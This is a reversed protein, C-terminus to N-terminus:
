KFRIKDILVNSDYIGDGEDRVILRYIGPGGTVPLATSVTKWNTHGVTDDGGPFNIQGVPAFTSTNVSEFALQSTTGDPKVLTIRM